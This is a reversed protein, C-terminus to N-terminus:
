RASAPRASARARRAAWSSDVEGRKMDISELIQAGSVNRADALWMVECGDGHVPPTNLEKIFENAEKGEYDYGACTACPDGSLVSSAYHRIWGSGAFMAGPKPLGTKKDTLHKTLFTEFEHEREPTDFRFELEGYNALNVTYTMAASFDFELAAIVHFGAQHCGLSFGGAGAFLDVAVPRRRTFREPVILGSKTTGWEPEQGDEPVLIREGPLRM